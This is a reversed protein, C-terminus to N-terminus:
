YRGIFVEVRAGAADPTMREVVLRRTQKDDRWAIGNLADSLVKEANGTDICRISHEWGAPDRRARREWDKPRHPYVHIEMRIWGELLQLGAAKARWACEEKFARGEESVVMRGRWNRWYRNASVPYPLVLGTSEAPLRPQLAVAAAASFQETM